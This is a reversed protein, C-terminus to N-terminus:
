DPHGPNSGRIAYWFSWVIHPRKKAKYSIAKKYLLFHNLQGHSIDSRHDSVCMSMVLVFLYKTFIMLSASNIFTNFKYRFHSISAASYYM